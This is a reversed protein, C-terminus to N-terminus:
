RGNALSSAAPGPIDRGPAGELGRIAFATAFAYLWGLLIDLVYHEAAYILVLAMAVAYLALAARAGGRSGPWFFMAILVPYAAHLSPIAAVDNAYLNAGSFTEAIGHQGLHEWLERVLRHTPPLAGRQSALWPPVAPFVVYTLYGLTTVGVLAKMYGLYRPRSRVWLALGVAAPLFFHSMYVALAAYDWWQPHAQSYFARQMLVTPVIGGSLAEDVRIQPLTHAPPLFRGLRNHISDYVFLVVFVPFWDVLFRGVVRPTRLLRAHAGLPLRAADPAGERHGMRGM